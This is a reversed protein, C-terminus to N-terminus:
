KEKFTTGDQIFWGLFITETDSIETTFKMALVARYPSTLKSAGHIQLFRGHRTYKHGM